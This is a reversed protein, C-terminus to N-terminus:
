KPLTFFFTSGPEGSTSQVWIKGGHAEVIGKCIALGIGSSGKHLQKHDPMQYFKGFIASHFKSDIGPGQDSVSIEIEKPFNLIKVLIVKGTPSFKISNHILNRLVQMIRQEDVHIKGPFECKVDFKIEKADAAAKLTLLVDDLVPKLYVDKSDLLLQGSEIRSYDLFDHVTKILNDTNRKIIQLYETNKNPLKRALIDAAGKISTLPTRLEHSIDSFFDSKAKNLNELDKLTRELNSNTTSLDETAAQIQKELEEHQKKLREDLLYCFDQIDKLEDGKKPLHASASESDIGSLVSRIADIRKFVLSRTGIFLLGMLSLAFGSMGGALVFKNKCIAAMAADMPVFVSICGGIEGPKYYQRQHCQMCNETVYVPAVYRMVMEGGRNETKFIGDTNNNRFSEIAQHELQDPINDPNIRESNTLKFFYSGGKEARQSLMKTLVSPSIRTYRSGAITYNDATGRMLHADDSFEPVYVSNHDAVWDRTIVIQKYLIIAQKRVQELIHEEQQRSIWIFLFISGSGVILFCVAIFKMSIRGIYPNTNKPNM